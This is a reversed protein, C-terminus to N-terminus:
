THVAHGPLMERVVSLRVGRDGRSVTAILKSRVVSPPPPPPRNIRALQMRM